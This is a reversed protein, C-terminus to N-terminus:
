ISTPKRLKRLREAEQSEGQLASDDNIVIPIYKFVEDIYNHYMEECTVSHMYPLYGFQIYSLAKRMLQASSCVCHIERFQLEDFLKSAVYCEDSSNYVGSDGKYITNVEEGYIDEQPIGNSILFDSGAKSLSIKDSIGNDMHISGPIFFKVVEGNSIYEKYIKIGLLLRNTFEENPFMGEVLPHQAAIEILIGKNVRSSISNKKANEYKTKWRIYNTNDENM